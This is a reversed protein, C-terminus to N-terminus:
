KLKDYEKKAEILVPMDSDADKWLAFFDQYYKRAKATDGSLAAARAGGLYALPYKIGVPVLGRHDIITQFEAAAEAGRKLNLYALGRLYESWLSGSFDSYFNLENPEAGFYAKAPELLEIARADNRGIEIAARM